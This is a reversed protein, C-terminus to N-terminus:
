ATVVKMASGAFCLMGEGIRRQRLQAHWVQNQANARGHQTGQPVWEGEAKRMEEGQEPPQKTLSTASGTGNGHVSDEKKGDGNGTSQSSGGGVEGGKQAQGSDRGIKPKRRRGEEGVAWWRGGEV